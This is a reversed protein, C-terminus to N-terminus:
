APGDSSTREWLEDDPDVQTGTESENRAAEAYRAWFQDDEYRDLATTLLDNTSTQREHRLRNIRDRLETTVRLTTSM